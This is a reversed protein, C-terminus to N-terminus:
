CMIRKSRHHGTNLKLIMTWLRSMFQSESDSSRSIGIESYSGFMTSQKPGTAPMNM